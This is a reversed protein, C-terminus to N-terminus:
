SRSVIWGGTELKEVGAFIDQCRDLFSSVKATVAIWGGSPAAIYRGTEISQTEIQWTARRALPREIGRWLRLRLNEQELAVVMQGVARCFTPRIQGATGHGHRRM